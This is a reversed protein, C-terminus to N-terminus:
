VLHDQRGRLEDRRDFLLTDQEHFKDWDFFIHKEPVTGFIYDFDFM